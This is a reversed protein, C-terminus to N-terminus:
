TSSVISAFDLTPTMPVPTEYDFDDHPPSAMLGLPDMDLTDNPSGNPIDIPDSQITPTNITIVGNDIESQQITVCPQFVQPQVQNLVPQVQEIVPQIYEVQEVPPQYQICLMPPPPPPQVIIPHRKPIVGPKSLVSSVMSPHDTVYAPKSKYRADHKTHVGTPNLAKLKKRITPMRKEAVPTWQTPLLGTEDYYKMVKPHMARVVMMTSKYLSSYVDSDLFSPHDGALVHNFECELPVLVQNMFWVGRAINEDAVLTANGYKMMSEHDTAERFRKYLGKTKTQQLKFWRM